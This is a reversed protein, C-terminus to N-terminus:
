RRTRDGGAAGAEAGLSEAARLGTVVAKVLGGLYAANRGGEMGGSASGVAYLGRLVSGDEGTVRCRDDIAVGGMTYTLGACVPIAYFPPVACTRPAIPGLSRPPELGGPDGHEIAANLTGVTAELAAGPVSVLAALAGLDAAEFVEGGCEVFAPNMSPPYRNDAGVERWAVSDFVVTASLPDELRAVRNAMYVGGRGEDVFRRGGGDVILSAQALADVTPYPWLKENRFVSRGLLHGYFRDMGVMAAGAERAMQLGDGRGTGAGRQFLAEPRACLYRRVMELNGQFGGDAIVVSRAPWRVAGSGTEVTVAEVERAPGLELSRAQAGRVIRGGGDELARTLNRLLVDPGRGRWELGPRRPRPPALIWRMFELAGGKVFKAGHARLWQLARGADEALISAGATAPEDELVRALAEELEERPRTLDKFALHVIGGSFRSNCPYDQAEGRELVVPREGLEVLRNACVLGALGGGVIVVPVGPVGPAEREFTVTEEKPGADSRM